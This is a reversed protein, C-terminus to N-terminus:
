HGALFQTKQKIITESSVFDPRLIFYMCVFKHKQVDAFNHIEAQLGSRHKLTLHPSHQPDQLSQRLNLARNEQQRPKMKPHSGPIRHNHLLNIQRREQVTLHRWRSMILFM